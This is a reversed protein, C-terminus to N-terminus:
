RGNRRLMNDGMRRSDALAYESNVSPGAGAVAAQSDGHLELQRDLIDLRIQLNRNM